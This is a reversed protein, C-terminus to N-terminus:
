DVALLVCGSECLWRKPPGPEVLPAAGALMFHLLVCLRHPAGAQVGLLHADVAARPVLPPRGDGHRGRGRGNERQVPVRGRADHVGVSGDVMHRVPWLICCTALCHVAGCSLVARQLVTRCTAVHRRCRGESRAYAGSSRACAASKESVCLPFSGREMGRRARSIRMRRLPAPWLSSPLTRCALRVAKSYSGKLVEPAVYHVSGCVKHYRCGYRGWKVRPSPTPDPEVARVAALVPRSASHVAAFSEASPRLLM